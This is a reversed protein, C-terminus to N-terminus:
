HLDKQSVGLWGLINAPILGDSFDIQDGYKEKLKRLVYKHLVNYLPQVIKWLEDIEQVFDDSEYSSRWMDGKDAFGSFRDVLLYNPSFVSNVM